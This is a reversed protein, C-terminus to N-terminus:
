YGAVVVMNILDSWCMFSTLDNTSKNVEFVFGLRTKSSAKARIVQYTVTGGPRRLTLGDTAELMAKVEPVRNAYLERKTQPHPHPM